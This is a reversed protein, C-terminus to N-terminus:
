YKCIRKSLKRKGAANAYVVLIVRMMYWSVSRARRLGPDRRGLDISGDGVGSCIQIKFIKGFEAKERYWGPILVRTECM